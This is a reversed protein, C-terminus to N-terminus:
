GAVPNQERYGWAMCTLHWTQAKQQQGPVRALPCMVLIIMWWHIRGPKLCKCTHVEAPWNSGWAFSNAARFLNFRSSWPSSTTHFCYKFYKGRLDESTAWKWSPYKAAGRPLLRLVESSQTSSDPLKTDSAGITWLYYSLLKTQWGSNGTSWQLSYTFWRLDMENYFHNTRNWSSLPRCSYCFGKKPDQGGTGTWSGRQGIMMSKMRRRGGEINNKGDHDNSRNDYDHDNTMTSREAESIM